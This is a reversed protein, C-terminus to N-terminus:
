LDSIGSTQGLGSVPKTEQVLELDLWSSNKKKKIRAKCKLKPPIELVTLHKNM